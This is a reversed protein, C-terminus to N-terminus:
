RPLAKKKIVHACMNININSTSPGLYIGLPISRMVVAAAAAASCAGASPM